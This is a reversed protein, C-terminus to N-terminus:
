SEQITVKEIAVPEGEAGNAEIAKVVEMGATVQGFLSYDPGPLSSCDICIFFQSGNTDPGSNAMALAGEPYDDLSEPLEDAIEYGPDGTGPPDGVPDGGQIVFGPVVRHFDDGDFYKYRALTVFNNVTGPARDAFLDLTIDGKGTELVATYTKAPDICQKPAASFERVPEAAGEAPPCEGAGYEFAVPEGDQGEATTTTSDSAETTTTTAATDDGDDDGGRSAVLVLVGFLVVAALAGAILRQRRSARKAAEQEAELRRQRADKQRERKPSGM